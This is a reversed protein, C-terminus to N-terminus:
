DGVEMGGNAIAPTKYTAKINNNLAVMQQKSEQQIHGIEEKSIAVQPLRKDYYALIKYGESFVLKAEQKSFGAKCLAQYNNDVYTGVHKAAEINKLPMNAGYKESYQVVAHAVFNAKIQSMGQKLYEATLTRIKQQGLNFESIVKNLKTARLFLGGSDALRSDIALMRELKQQLLLFDSTSKPKLHHQLYGQLQGQRSAEFYARLFFNYKDHAPAEKGYRNRYYLLQEALKATVYKVTQFDSKTDIAALSHQVPTTLKQCLQTFDLQKSDFASLFGLQERCFKQKEQEYQLKLKQYQTHLIAHRKHRIIQGTIDNIANESHAYARKRAANQWLMLDIGQLKGLLKPQKKIQQITNSLGHKELLARCKSFAQQPERYISFDAIATPRTTQIIEKSAALEKELKAFYKQYDVRQFLPKIYSNVLAASGVKLVDNFDKGIENPRIIRVTHVGQAKIALAAREIVLNTKAEHGDNDACIIVKKTGHNGEKRFDINKINSIGLSCIVRADKQSQAISLATELGEAIFITNAAKNTTVEVFNGQIHGRSIKVIELNSNKQPTRPDLYIIQVGKAKGEADRAFSIVAPYSKKDEHAKLATIFRIDDSLKISQWDIKRSEQLYRQGWVARSHTISISNQLAEIVSRTKWEDKKQETSQTFNQKAPISPSAPLTHSLSFNKEKYVQYLSGGEAASFDYWRGTKLDVIIKSKDGFRLQDHKSHKNYQGFLEAAISRILDPNRLFDQYRESYHFETYRRTNDNGQKVSIFNNAMTWSSMSIDRQQKGLSIQEKIVPPETTHLIALSKDGSKTGILEKLKALDDIIIHANHRARSVTIYFARLTSLQLHLERARAIGIVLDATKGQARYTTNAYDHDIHQMDKHTLAIVHVKGSTTRITANDSSIKEIVAQAGNIIFSHEKSNHTWRIKEGVQLSISEKEYAEVINRTKGVLSDPRWVVSTNDAKQLVLEGTNSDIKQIQLYENAAIGAAKDAARFILTDGVHYSAIEQLEAKTLSRRTLIDHQTSSSNEFIYYQRIRENIIRRLPNSPVVVLVEKGQGHAEQWKDMLAAALEENTIKPPAPAAANNAVDLRALEQKQATVDTINADGIKALAKSILYNATFPKKDIAQEALYVSERLPTNQQRKIDSMIATDMGNDQLYYFPKGNEIAGLQRTDGQLVLRFQLIEALKLLDRIQNTSALSAEDLIVIKNHLDQRLKALGEKTGRGELVGARKVLFLQLTRADAGTSNKFVTVADRTPALGLIEYDHAGALERVQQLATTKGSGASGQIAVVQDRSAMILKVAEKAGQSLSKEALHTDVASAAMIPKNQGQLKRMLSITYREQQINEPTTLYSACKNEKIVLNGNKSNKEMIAEIDAIRYNVGVKAFITKFIDERLWVAERESNHAITFNYAKEVTTIAQKVNTVSNAAAMLNQLQEWSDIAECRKTWETILAAEGQAQKDNRSTKAILALEEASTVGAEAAKTLIDQRRKSFEKIVAESVGAIEFNFYSKKADGETIEYGLSKINHALERRYIEGLFMKNKYLADFVVSRWQGDACLTANAILCHTHLQPDVKVETKEKDTVPRATFHDFKAILGNDVKIFNTQKNETVRAYLLHKQVYDITADVALKHAEIIRKDGAVMAMISVSKPASLILENGAHHAIGEATKRGLQIDGLKGNLADTFNQNNLETIGLADIAKSPHWNKSLEFEKEIFYFYKTANTSSSIAKIVAVM